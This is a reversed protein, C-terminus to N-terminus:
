ARDHASAQDEKTLADKKEQMSKDISCDEPNTAVPKSFYHKWTFYIITGIAIAAAGIILANRLVTIKNELAKIRADCLNLNEIKSEIEKIQNKNNILTEWSVEGYNTHVGDKDLIVFASAAHVSLIITCILLLKRM